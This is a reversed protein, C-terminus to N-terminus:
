SRGTSLPIVYRHKGTRALRGLGEMPLLFGCEPESHDLM